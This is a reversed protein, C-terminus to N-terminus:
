PGKSRISLRRRSRGEPLMGLGTYLRVYDVTDWHGALLDDQARFFDITM